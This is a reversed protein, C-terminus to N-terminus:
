QHTLARLATQTAADAYVSYFVFMRVGAFLLLLNAVFSFSSFFFFSRVSNRRIEV